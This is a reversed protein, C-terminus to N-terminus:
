VSFIVPEFDNVRETSKSRYCARPERKPQGPRDQRDAADGRSSRRRLAKPLRPLGSPAMISACAATTTWVFGAFKLKLLGTFYDSLSLGALAALEAHPESVPRDQGQTCATLAVLILRQSIELDKPISDLQAELETKRESSM